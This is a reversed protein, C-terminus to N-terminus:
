LLQTHESEYREFSKRGLQFIKELKARDSEVFDTRVDTFAENIRLMDVDGFCCVMSSRLPTSSTGLLTMITRIPRFSNLVRKREPFQGTGVSLIRVASRQINLPGLADALGFLAPNNATFGGDVVDRAGHETTTVTVKGFYRIPLM